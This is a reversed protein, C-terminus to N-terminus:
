FFIFRKKKKVKQKQIPIEENQSEEIGFNKNRLRESEKIADLIEIEDNWDNNLIGKTNTEKAYTEDIEDRIDNSINEAETELLIKDITTIEQTNQNEDDLGFLIEQALDQEIEDINKQELQDAPILNFDPPIVLPPNEVVKYEDVSKRTVGASERMKNCSYLTFSIFIVFFISSLKLMM